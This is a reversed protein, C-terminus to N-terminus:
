LKRGCATCYQAKVPVARGCGPCWRDGCLQHACRQCYIEDAANVYGCSPCIVTTPPQPYVPSKPLNQLVVEMDPVASVPGQCFRELEATLRRVEADASQKLRRWVATQGPRKFDDARFILNEGNHFDKWLGPDTQLALLSLYIVLGPFADANEEYYGQAIREPHQYNIHGVEAPPSGRLTPLFFGDYDVLQITGQGNVLINGHQLDGHAIHAGSLGALVGRWQAALRGLVHTRQLCGAVYQHLQQGSVWDMKVVPYWQGRVLIGQPLYTFNVLHPLQIAQLYRSLAEYRQQQDTVPRIFCRVAFVKRGSQLQYVVAFNGSVGIPLGLPNTNVKGKKLEPDTFCHHPNQIATSYDGPSPWPRTASM